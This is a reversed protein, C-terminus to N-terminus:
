INNGTISRVRGKRSQKMPFVGNIHAKMFKLTVMVLRSRFAPHLISPAFSHNLPAPCPTLRMKISCPWLSRISKTSFEGFTGWRRSVRQRRMSRACKSPFSCPSSCSGSGLSNIFCSVVYVTTGVNAVLETVSKHCKTKHLAHARQVISM